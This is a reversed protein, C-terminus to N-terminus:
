WHSRQLWAPLEQWSIGPAVARGVEDDRSVGIVRDADADGRRVDEAVTETSEAAVAGIPVRAGTLSKGGDIEPLGSSPEVSIASGPVQSPVSGM